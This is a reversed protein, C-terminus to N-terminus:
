QRYTNTEQYVKELGTEKYKKLFTEIGKIRETANKLIHRDYDRQALQEVLMLEKKKIYQGNNNKEREDAVEKKYYYEVGKRKKSIRLQGEPAKKLRKEVEAIIMNLQEQELRLKCELTQM